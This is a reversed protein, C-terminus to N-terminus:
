ESKAQTDADTIEAKEPESNGVNEDLPVEFKPAAGKMLVSQHFAVGEDANVLHEDSLLEVLRLAQLGMETIQTKGTKVTAEFSDNPEYVVTQEKLAFAHLVGIANLVLNGEFPARQGQKYGFQSADLHVEPKEMEKKEAKSSM